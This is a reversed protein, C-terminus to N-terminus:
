SKGPPSVQIEYQNNLTEAGGAKVSHQTRAVLAKRRALLLKTKTGVDTPDLQSATALADAQEGWRQQSGYIDSVTLFFLAHEPFVDIARQVARLADGPRNEQLAILALLHHADPHNGDSALVENALKTADPLNGQGFETYGRMLVERM